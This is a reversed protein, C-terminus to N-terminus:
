AVRRTRVILVILAIILVAGVGVIVWLLYTPIVPQSTVPVKVVEIKTDGPETIVVPEAKEEEVPEAMTTFVGTVWPGAPTVWAKGALYPEATVGRVRWYYTTSYKLANDAGVAYFPNDVNASWELIAFTPDESVAIEYKIAGEYEAWTFTPTTSVDAAGVAPGSVAFPEELSQVTFSRTATWPSNLPSTTRVRWYYTEGPMYNVNNSPGNIRAVTETSLTGAAMTDTKIIANFDPDTAIELVASNVDTDNYKKFTFTVDYVTGSKSNVSVSAGDDPGTVAPAALSVPDTFSELDDGTGLTDIAWLTPMGSSVSVKMANRGANFDSSVADDQSWDADTYPASSDAATELELSQYLISDTGNYGIVYVVGEAQGMGTIGFGTDAAGRTSAPSTNLKGRKVAGTGTTASTVGVYIIGNDTYGDDPVVIANIGSYTYSRTFTSGGDTSYNVYGDTGGVLVDGTSAITIMYPSMGESPSKGLGWSAGANSTKSCSDDDVAYVVDASEVAFDVITDSAFPYVPVSKWSELGGNKSVWMEKTGVQGLYVADTDDPAMRVLMTLNTQDKLSFVRHMSAKRWVSIDNGSYTVWYVVSGDAAVDFDPIADVTTNILAVDNFAYGDDSSMAIGGEDGATGALVSDGAYAVSTNTSGGPQKLSNLKTAKVVSSTPSLYQYVKNEDADGAVVIGEENYAVSYIAGPEGGSWTDFDTQVTDTIRMVGGGSNAGAVGVYALRMDDDNALYDSPVAIDATGLGGVVTTGPTLELGTGWDTASLYDISGNWETDGTEYRFIQFIGSNSGNTSVALIAKETSFGPSILVAKIDTQNPAYGTIGNYRATWSELVKIKYTYLEAVGGATQGGAAIYVYTSYCVDIANITAGTAPIDLDTWLSGGNETYEIKGATTLIAVVDPDEKAIAVKEVGVGQPFSTANELSEFTAGGDTSKYLAYGGSTNDCGVYVIDGSAAVDMISLGSVVLNKYSTTSTPDSEAWWQAKFIAHGSVPVAAVLLGALVAITVAVGLIKSIKSKM